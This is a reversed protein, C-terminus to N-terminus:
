PLLENVPIRGVERGDIVIPVEAGPLYCVATIYTAGDPDNYVEIAGGILNVIWYSPIRAAAYIELKGRM